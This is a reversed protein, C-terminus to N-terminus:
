LPADAAAAEGNSYAAAFLSRSHFTMANMASLQFFFIKGGIITKVIKELPDPPHESPKSANM